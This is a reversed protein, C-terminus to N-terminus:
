QPYTIMVIRSGDPDYHGALIQKSEGAALGGAVKVRYTIGGYFLDQSSNKYYVYIDGSIATDSINTVTLNGETGTIQFLEPYLPLQPLFVVSSIHVADPKQSIFDLRNEELLVVKAGAPINTVSFKAERDGFTLGIQAYQLAQQSTNELIAMMVGSVVENSGDEMYAGTYPALETIQLGQGLDIPAMEPRTALSVTPKTIPQAPPQLAADLILAACIAVAALAALLIVAKQYPKLKM